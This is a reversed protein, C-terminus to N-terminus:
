YGYWGTGEDNWGNKVLNDREKASTTYHHSGTTANPNYLRYVATGSEKDASLFALGEDRWGAKVLNDREKTSTTYHHDGVNPNYLRYVPTGENKPSLWASGEISWGAKFLEKLEKISSTYFHEGSNPNYARYMMTYDDSYVIELRDIAGLDIAGTTNYDSGQYKKRTIQQGYNPIIENWSGVGITPLVMEAVQTAYEDNDIYAYVTEAKRGSISFDFRPDGGPASVTNLLFCDVMPDYKAAMYSYALCAAQADEGRYTSFGQETLMIRHNEGYTDRIYSTISQLNRGDVFSAGSNLPNLEGFTSSPKWIETEWLISPYLHLAVCWDDVKNGNNLEALKADFMALYDRGAIGRGEDNHTWSHDICVSCRTTSSYQRVIKRMDYFSVAYKSVADGAGVGGCFHWSNHMNVENGLIINDVHLGGNQLNSMFWAWFARLIQKGEGSAAPAYYPISEVYYRGSEDILLRRGTLDGNGDNDEVQYSIMFQINTSKGQMNQSQIWSFFYDYDFFRYAKGEFYFYPVGCEPYADPIYARTIDFNNFAHEGGGGTQFGKITTKGEYGDIMDKPEGAYSQFPVQFLGMVICMLLGIIIRVKKM